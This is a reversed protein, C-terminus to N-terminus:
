GEEHQRERYWELYDDLADEYYSLAEEYEEQTDYEARQPKRYRM